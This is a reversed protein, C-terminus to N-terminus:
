NDCVLTLQCSSNASITAPRLISRHVLCGDIPFLMREDGTADLRHKDVLAKLEHFAAARATVV